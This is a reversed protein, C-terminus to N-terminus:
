DPLVVALNVHGQDLLSQATVLARQGSKCALVIRQGQLKSKLDAITLIELQQNVAFRLPSLKIEHDPRVDIVWDDANIQSEGILDIATAGIFTAASFDITHQSYNWLDLYVIKGRLTSKNVLTKLAEQAQYSAVIGVSPGTVGVTDCSTQQKALKPFVARLSPADKCFLGLYGFTRNVSASLLDLNLEDCIDSLLYSTAFNDAADIVLTKSSCLSRVNRPSLRESVAKIKINSNIRSLERQAVKAKSKGIDSERYLLQRHLNSEDITDHDILTISGVGAGSLQAAVECGLGGAGVILVSANNIRTQGDVGIEPIM